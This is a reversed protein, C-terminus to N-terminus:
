APPPSTVDGVGCVVADVCADPAVGDVDVGVARRVAVGTSVLADGAAADDVGLAVDCTDYAAGLGTVPSRELSGSRGTAPAKTPTAAAATPADPKRRRMRRRPVFQSPGTTHDRWAM